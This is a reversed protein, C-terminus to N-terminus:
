RLDSWLAVSLSSRFGAALRSSPSHPLAAVAGLLQLAQERIPACKCASTGLWLAHRRVCRKLQQIVNTVSDFHLMEVHIRLQFINHIKHQPCYWSLLYVSLGCSFVCSLM